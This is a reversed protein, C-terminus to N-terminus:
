IFFFISFYFLTAISLLTFVSRNNVSFGHVRHRIVAKCLLFFGCFIENVQELEKEIEGARIVIPGRVAYELRIINENMNEMTVCKKNLSQKTAMTRGPEITTLAGCGFTNGGRKDFLERRCHQFVYSCPNIERAYSKCLLRVAMKRRSLNSRSFNRVTLNTPRVGNM